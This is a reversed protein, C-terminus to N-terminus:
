PERYDNPDGSFRTVENSCNRWCKKFKALHNFHTAEQRNAQTLSLYPTRYVFLAEYPARRPRQSRHGQKREANTVSPARENCITGRPNQRIGGGKSCSGG